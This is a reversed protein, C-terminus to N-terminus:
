SLFTSPDLIHPSAHPAGFLPPHTPRPFPYTILLPPLHLAQTQPLWCSFILPILHCECALAMSLNKTLTWGGTLM